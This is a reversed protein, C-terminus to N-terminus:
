VLVESKKLVSTGLELVSTDWFCGSACDWSYYWQIEMKAKWIYPAIIIGRYIKELKPWDIYRRFRLNIGFKRDFTMLENYSSITLVKSDDKLTLETEHYSGLRFVGWGESECWDKWGDENGTEASVWLGRPKFYPDDRYIPSNNHLELLPGKSYHVLRM